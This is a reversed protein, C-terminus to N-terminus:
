PWSGPDFCFLVTLTAAVLSGRLSRLRSPQLCQRHWVPNKPRERTGKNMLGRAFFGVDFESLAARAQHHFILDSYVIFVSNGKLNKKRQQSNITLHMGHTVVHVHKSHFFFFAPSFIAFFRMCIWINLYLLRGTSSTELKAWRDCAKYRALVGGPSPEYTECFAGKLMLKKALSWGSLWSSESACAPVQAYDSFPRLHPFFFDNNKM